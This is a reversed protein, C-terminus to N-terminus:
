NSWRGSLRSIVRRALRNVDAAARHISVRGTVLRPAARRCAKVLMPPEERVVGGPDNADVLARIKRELGKRTTPIGTQRAIRGKFAAVGTARRWSFSLGPGLRM